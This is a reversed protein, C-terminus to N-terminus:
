NRSTVCISVSAITVFPTPAVILRYIHRKSWYYRRLRRYHSVDRPHTNSAHKRAASTQGTTPLTTGKFIAIGRHIVINVVFPYRGIATSLESASATSLIFAIHSLIRNIRGCCINTNYSGGLFYYINRENCLKSKNCESSVCSHLFCRLFVRKNSIHSCFLFAEQYYRTVKCCVWRWIYIYIIM